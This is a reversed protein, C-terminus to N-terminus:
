PTTSIDDTIDSPWVRKLDERRFAQVAITLELMAHAVPPASATLTYTDFLKDEARISEGSPIENMYYYFGDSGKRWNRVTSGTEPEGDTGWEFIGDTDKWDAVVDYHTEGEEIRELVWNGIFTARVYIPALGTNKIQLDSKIKTDDSLKDDVNVEVEQPTTIVFTYMKGEEWEGIIKNISKTLGYTREDVNLRIYLQPNNDPNNDSFSQPMLYFTSGIQNGNEPTLAPNFTQAFPFPSKDDDLTWSTNNIARSGKYKLNSFHIEEITGEPITGVKVKIASMVHKMNLNVPTNSNGALTEHDCTTLDLQESVDKPVNYTISPMNETTTVEFFGTTEGGWLTTKVNESHPSYAFFKVWYNPGPWYKIPSYSFNDDVDLHTNKMFEQLGTNSGDYATVITEEGKPFVYAFVGLDYSKDLPTGRTHSTSDTPISDIRTTITTTPIDEVIAYVTITDGNITQDFCVPETVYSTSQSSSETPQSSTRTKEAENWGEPLNMGFTIMDTSDPHKESIWTEEVCASVLVLAMTLM